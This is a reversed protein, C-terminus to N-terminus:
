GLYFYFLDRCRRRRRTDLVLRIIDIHFEGGFDEKKAAVAFYGEQECRQQESPSPVHHAYRVVRLVACFYQCQLLALLGASFASDTDEDRTQPLNVRFM